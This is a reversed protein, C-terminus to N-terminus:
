KIESGGWEVAVFGTREPTNLEQEKIKIPNDLGKYTMMVRIITDPNPNIELPMNKNIEDSTAFRIYNYSNKELKPLWYIIFEEKERDTLGLIALKEELFSATDEGKVVFGDDQMKYDYTNKCEYYLAYLNKNTGLEKLNGNPEAYVNWNTDYKPYSCTIKDPNGLVVNVESDKTPYLYIIPKDAQGSYTSNAKIKVNITDINAVDKKSLTILFLEATGGATNAGYEVALNVNLLNSGGICVDNLKIYDIEGSTSVEVLLMSYKEFYKENYKKNNLENKIKETRNKVKENEEIRSLLQEKIKEYTKTNEYNTYEVQMTYEVIDYKWTDLKSMMELYESYTNILKYNTENSSNKSNIADLFPIDVSLGVSQGLDYEILKKNKIKNNIRSIFFYLGIVVIIIFVFSIFIAKNLSIKIQKKEEM